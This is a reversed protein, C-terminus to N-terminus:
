PNITGWGVTQTVIATGNHVWFKGDPATFKGNEVTRQWSKVTSTSLNKWTITGERKFGNVFYNDFTMVSTSGTHRLSDSLVVNIKGKRFIGNSLCGAGFDILITKPFGGQSVTVTACGFIINSPETQPAFNGQLGKEEAAENLILNDDENINDSTAQRGSLEFTTEIESNSQADETKKCSTFLVATSLSLSLLIPLKKM